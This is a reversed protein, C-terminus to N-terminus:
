ANDVLFPLTFFHAAKGSKDKKSPVVDGGLLEAALDVVMKSFFYCNEGFVRYEPAIDKITSAIVLLRMPDTHQPFKVSSEYKEADGEYLLDERAEAM